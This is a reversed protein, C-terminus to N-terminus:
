CAQKKLYNSDYKILKEKIKEKEWEMVTLCLMPWKKKQEMLRYMPSYPSTYYFSNEILKNYLTPKLAM